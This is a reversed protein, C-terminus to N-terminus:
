KICILEIFAHTDYTTEKDALNDVVVKFGSSEVYQRFENNNYYAVFKERSDYRLDKEMHEGNGQKLCVALVGNPKLLDHIRTLVDQMKSKPVHLLSTLAWVGDFSEKPFQLDEIDM